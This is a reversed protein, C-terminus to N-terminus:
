NNLKLKGAQSQCPIFTLKPMQPTTPLNTVMILLGEWGTSMMQAMTITQLM